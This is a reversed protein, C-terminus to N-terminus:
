IMLNPFKLHQWKIVKARICLVSLAAKLKGYVTLTITGSIMLLSQVVDTWIVATMGGLVCIVAAIMVM